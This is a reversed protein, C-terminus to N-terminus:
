VCRSTYLLCSLSILSIGDTVKGTHKPNQNIHVKINKFHGAYRVPRFVRSLYKGTKFLNSSNITIGFKSRFETFSIKNNSSDFADITRVKDERLYAFSHDGVLLEREANGSSFETSHLSVKSLSFEKLEFFKPTYSGQNLNHEVKHHDLNTFSNSNCM